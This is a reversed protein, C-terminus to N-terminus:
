PAACSMQVWVVEAARRIWLDVDAGASAAVFTEGDGIPIPEGAPVGARDLVVGYVVRREAGCGLPSLWLALGGAELPRLAALSPAGPTRVEAAPQGPRVFLIKAGRVDSGERACGQEDVVNGHAMAVPVDGLLAADLLGHEIPAHAFPAPAGEGETGWFTVEGGGSLVAVAGRKGEVAALGFPRTFAANEDPTLSIVRRAGGPDLVVVDAGSPAVRGARSTLLACRTAGCALDAAVYADGSGLAEVQGARHLAVLSMGGDRPEEWAVLWQEGLRAVRPAARAFPWPLWAGPAAEGGGGMSLVGSRLVAPPDISTEAVVLVGPSRADAAFHTAVGANAALVPARRRCHLPAAIGTPGFVKAFTWPSPPPVQAPAVVAAASGTTSTVSGTGGADSTGGGCSGCGAAVVAIAALAPVCFRPSM